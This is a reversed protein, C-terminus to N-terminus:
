SEENENWFILSRQNRHRTTTDTSVGFPDCVGEATQRSGLFRLM